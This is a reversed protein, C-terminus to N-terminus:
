AMRGSWADPIIRKLKYCHSTKNLSSALPMIGAEVMIGKFEDNSIYCGLANGFYTKLYHSEYREGTRSPVCHRHILIVANERETRTM